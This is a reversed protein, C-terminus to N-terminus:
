REDEELPRDEFLMRHPPTDVDDFQGTNAAWTFAGAAIAAILLAAPAMIFIISM